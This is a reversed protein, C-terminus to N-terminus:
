KGTVETDLGFGAVIVTINDKGGNQNAMAILQAVQDQPNSVAQLVDKIESDTVMGSLGDSCILIISDEALELSRTDIEISWEVGLAQSMVNRKPHNRAEEPTILGQRQMAAVHSHDMTVQRLEQDSYHYLRSDGVHAMHMIRNVLLAVTLTTGMQPYDLDTQAQVIIGNIQLVLNRLLGLWAESEDIAPWVSVSNLLLKQMSEAAIKAAVDGGLYGGMGDAVLFLYVSSADDTDRLCGAFFADQNDRRVIGTDTAAAFVVEFSNAVSVGVKYNVYVCM